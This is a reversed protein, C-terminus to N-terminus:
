LTLIVASLGVQEIKRVVIDAEAKSAFPGVRVRVRLGYITEAEHSYSKLGANQLERIVERARSVDAFAGVQVVFREEVLSSKSDADKGESATPNKRGDDFKIKKSTAHELPPLGGQIQASVISVEIFILFLFLYFIRMYGFPPYKNRNQKPENM